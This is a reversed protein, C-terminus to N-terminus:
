CWQTAPPTRGRPRRGGGRRLRRRPPGAGRGAGGAGEGDLDREAVREARRAVAVHLHRDDAGGERQQLLGSFRACRAFDLDLPGLGGVFGAFVPLRRLGGGDDLHHALLGLGACIRGSALLLLLTANQAVVVRMDANVAPATGSPSLALAGVATPDIAYREDAILGFNGEHQAVSASEWM